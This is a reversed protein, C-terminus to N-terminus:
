VLTDNDLIEGTEADVLEMESGQLKHGKNELVTVPNSGRVVPFTISTVDRGDIQYPEVQANWIEVAVHEGVASEYFPDKQELYNNEWQPLSVEKSPGTVQYEVGGIIETTKTPAQLRLVRFDRGNKDARVEGTSIVKSISALKTMSNNM